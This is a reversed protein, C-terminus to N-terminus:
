YSLKFQIWKFCSALEDLVQQSAGCRIYPPFFLFYGLTCQLGVTALVRIWRWPINIKNFVMLQEFMIIVSQSMFFLGNEMTIHGCYQAIAYEHLVSSALFAGVLGAAEGCSGYPVYDRIPQYIVSRFLGGVATDWRKGWFEKFSESFQPRAFPLMLPVKLITQAILCAFTLLLDAILYLGIPYFIFQVLIKAHKQIALIAIAGPLLIFTKIICWYTIQLFTYGKRTQPDYFPFPTPSIEEPKFEWPVILLALITVFQILNWEKYILPGRGIGFGIVKIASLFCFVMVAGVIIANEQFNLQFPFFLLYVISPACFALRVLGPKIHERVLSHLIACNVLLFLSFQVCLGSM